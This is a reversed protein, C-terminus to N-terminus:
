AFRLVRDFANRHLTMDTIMVHAYTDLTIKPSAHGLTRSVVSLPVSGSNLLLTAATHRAHHFGRHRITLRSLLPKWIRTGFNSRRTTTGDESPFMWSVGAHGCRLSEARKQALSDVVSDPLLIRRIGASTKPGKIEITGASECAQRQISLEQGTLDNWQLGWLEGGRLGCAFALRIAAGYRTADGATLIREVESLEFPDISKSEHGPRELHLM